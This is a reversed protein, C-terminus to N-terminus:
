RRKGATVPTTGREAPRDSPSLCRAQLMRAHPLSGRSSIKREPWSGLAWMRAAGFQVFERGEHSRAWLGIQGSLWTDDEVTVAYEDNIRFRCSSGTCTVSLRNSRRGRRVHPFQQWPVLRTTQDGHVKLVSYYGDTGVALVYCHTLDQARYVLGFDYFGEDVESIPLASVEFIFDPSPHTVLTITAAGPPAEVRRLLGPVEWDPQRRPRPSNWGWALAGIVGLAVIAALVAALMLRENLRTLAIVAGEVTPSLSRADADPALHVM